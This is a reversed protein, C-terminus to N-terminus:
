RDFRYSYNISILRSRVLLINAPSIGPFYRYISIESQQYKFVIAAIAGKLIYFFSIKRNILFKMVLAMLVISM